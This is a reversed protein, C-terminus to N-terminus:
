ELHEVTSVFRLGDSWPPNVCGVRIIFDGTTLDWASLQIVGEEITLTEPPGQDWTGRALEDSFLPSTGVRYIWRIEHGNAAITEHGGHTRHSEHYEGNYEIGGDALEVRTFYNREVGSRDFSDWFDRAEEETFGDTWRCDAFTDFSDVHLELPVRDASTVSVSRNPGTNRLSYWVPFPQAPDTSYGGSLDVLADAPRGGDDDGGGDDKCSPHSSDVECNPKAAPELSNESESDLATPGIGQCGLFVICAFLPLWATYPRM